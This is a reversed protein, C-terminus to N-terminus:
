NVRHYAPIGQPTLVKINFSILTETKLSSMLCYHIDLLTNKTELRTLESTLDICPYILKNLSFIYHMVQYQKVRRSTLM